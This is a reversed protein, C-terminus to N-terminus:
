QGSPPTYGSLWGNELFHITALVPSIQLGISRSIERGPPASVLM